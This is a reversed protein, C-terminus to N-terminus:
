GNAEEKAAARAEKVNSYEGALKRLQNVEKQEEKADKAKEKIIRGAAIKARKFREPDAKIVMARALTRADDEERWKKESKTQPVDSM